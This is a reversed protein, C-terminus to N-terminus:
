GFVVTELFWANEQAGCITSSARVKDSFGLCASREVHGCRFGAFDGEVTSQARQSCSGNTSM